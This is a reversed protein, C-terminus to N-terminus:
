LAGGVGGVGIQWHHVAEILTAQRHRRRQRVHRVDADLLDVVFEDPHQAEIGHLSLDQAPFDKLNYTLIVDSRSVIAAALVHRDDPDPLSLSPILPEFGAVLCDRVRFVGSTAMQVLLDRLPARYFICADITATRNIAM